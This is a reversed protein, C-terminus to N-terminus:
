DRSQPVPLLVQKPVHVFPHFRKEWKNLIEQSEYCPMQHVMGVVNEQLHGDPCRALPCSLSIFDEIISWQQGAISKNDKAIKLTQQITYMLTQINDEDGM